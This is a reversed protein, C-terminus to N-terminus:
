KSEQQESTKNRTDRQFLSAFPNNKTYKSPTQYEGSKEEYNNNNPSMPTNTTDM